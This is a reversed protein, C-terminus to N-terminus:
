QILRDTTGAAQKLFVEHGHREGQQVRGDISEYGVKKLPASCAPDLSLRRKARHPFGFPHQGIDLKAPTKVLHIEPEIRVLLRLRPACPQRDLQLQLRGFLEIM